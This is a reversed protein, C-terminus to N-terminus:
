ALRYVRAEYPRLRAGDPDAAGDVDYNALLLDADATEVDPLEVAPREASVNLVVLARDDGDVRLYAYLQPHDPLLLEYRGYVLLPQDHRLAILRRYYHWISDPVARAAAVNISEYNPNVPLWPEGTTFGAAAADSWQVPTRANDRSGYRVADAIDAFNEVDDRALMREVYRLTEVDSYDAISDFPGNTMGIEEGQYVFPSGRLTHLLTAFLTASERRYREDDGFRSVLRPQDHNNLYLANWGDPYLGEQWRTFTEKLDALEWDHFDWPDDDDTDLRMHEFHFVMDLPGDPGVYERADALSLGPMEGVTVVDEDALVRERMEGLYEQIRPGNIFHESGTVIEGTAGDPLGETKSLFNIVDMRFGDVDKALWWRMMAYVDERVAPNAWNLDPQSPAFLHLYWAEREDDWSWAPGGFLSEWNNPREDPEGERWHYYDAYEGEERRSRRFWEHEDSTHNVVLDMILRIDRDHLGDRLREWDAMTGYEDLIARYDRVDYGYDVLPSDYVPTLWVVDVGLDDLYDLKEVIGPLDGVGDGDADNFSRPYIEYFVAERWWTRDVAPEHTPTM